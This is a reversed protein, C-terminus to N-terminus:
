TNPTRLGAPNRGMGPYNSLDASVPLGPEAADGHASLRRDAARGDVYRNHQGIGPM